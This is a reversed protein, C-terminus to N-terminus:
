ATVRRKVALLGFIGLLGAMAILGWQSLTPVQAPARERVALGELVYDESVIRTKIVATGGELDIFALGLEVQPSGKTALAVPELVQMEVLAAAEYKTAASKVSSGLAALEDSDIDDSDPDPFALEEVAIDDTAPMLCPGEEVLAMLGSTDDFVQLNTVFSPQANNPDLEYVQNAGDVWTVLKAAEDGGAFLANGIGGIGPQGVFMSNGSTDDIEHLNHPTEVEEYAHITYGGVNTIDSIRETIGTPGIETGAGTVMDLRVLVPEYPEELRQCTAFLDGAPNFDLATCNGHGTDGIKTVVGTVPDILALWSVNPEPVEAKLVDATGAALTFYQLRQFVVSGTDLAFSLPSFCLFVALVFFISKFNRM